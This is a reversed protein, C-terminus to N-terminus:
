KPGWRKLSPNKKLSIKGQPFTTRKPVVKPGMKQAANIQLTCFYIHEFMQMIENFGM